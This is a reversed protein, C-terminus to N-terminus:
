RPKLAAKARLLDETSVLQMRSRPAASRGDTTKAKRAVSDNAAARTKKRIKRLDALQEEESPEEERGAALARSNVSQVGRDYSDVPEPAAGRMKGTGRLRDAITVREQVVPAGTGSSAVAKEQQQQQQQQQPVQPNQVQKLAALFQDQQKQQDEVRQRELAALKEQNARNQEALEKKQQAIQDELQKNKSDSEQTYQKVLQDVNQQPNPPPTVQAAPAPTPSSNNKNNNDQKGQDGGGPPMMPPTGGEGGGKGGGCAEGAKQNGNMADELAKKQAELAKREEEDKASPTAGPQPKRADIQKQLQEAATALSKRADDSKEARGEAFCVSAGITAVFSLLIAFRFM